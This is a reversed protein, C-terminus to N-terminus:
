RKGIERVSSDRPPPQTVATAIRPLPLILRAAGRDIAEKPMGFVVCTSEDQAITQAGAHRMALLGEAGDSGMGTMIVGVARDRAVKAVSLFLVDVSPRHRCVRPGDDLEVVYSVGRRGLRLHRNGPAILALGPTVRDEHRAERVEIACTENLRQAFAATFGEPMHQVVVIGPANAPLACLVDRLAETGGTSAGMAVVWEERGGGFANLDLPLTPRRVRHVGTTGTVARYVGTTDTVGGAVPVPVGARVRAQAAARVCELLGMAGDEVVGDSRVRPKLAVDVAGAELARMAQRTGPEAFGSCVVVPVPDTAMVKKLFTLGDMRPMELDLLIVDPRTRRMRTMAVLPDSATTVRLDPEKSLIATMLQRSVASDDVVLVEIPPREGSV